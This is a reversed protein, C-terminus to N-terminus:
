IECEANLIARPRYLICMENNSLIVCTKLFPSNIRIKSYTSFFYVKKQGEVCTESSNIDLKVLCLLIVVDFVQGWPPKYHFFNPHAEVLKNTMTIVQPCFTVFMLLNLWLLFKIKRKVQKTESGLEKHTKYAQANIVRIWRPSLLLSWQM